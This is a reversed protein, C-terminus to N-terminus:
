GPQERRYVTILRVPRGGGARGRHPCGIPLYFGDGAKLTFPRRRPRELILEGSLIYGALAYPLRAHGRPPRGPQLTEDFLELGLDARPPFVMTYTRQGDFVTTMDARRFWPGAAAPKSPALFGALDADLPALLRELMALSPKARGREVLSLMGATAGARAALARVSLGARTRLTRLATARAPTWDVGAPIRKM